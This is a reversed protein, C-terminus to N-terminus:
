QTCDENLWVKCGVRQRIQFDFVERCVKLRHKRCQGTKPVCLALQVRHFDASSVRLLSRGDHLAYFFALALIDGDGAVAYFLPCLKDPFLGSQGPELRQGQLGSACQGGECIQWVQIALHAFGQRKVPFFLIKFGDPFQHVVINAAKIFLRPVNGAADWHQVLVQM